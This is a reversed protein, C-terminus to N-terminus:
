HLAFSAEVLHSDKKFEIENIEVIKDTAKSVMCAIASVIPCGITIISHLNTEPLYLKEFVSESIMVDIVEEKTNIGIEEALELDNVLINAVKGLLDDINLKYAFIGTSPEYVDVKMMKEIMNILEMGPPSFTVGEPKKILFRTRLHDGFFAKRDSIESSPVDKAPIYVVTDELSDRYKPLESTTMVAKAPVYFIKGAFGVDGMARDISHYYPLVVSLLTSLDVKPRTAVLFVGGWFVCGLGIIAMAVHNLLLSMSLVLVGILSFVIGLELASVGKERIDRSAMLISNPLKSSNTAGDPKIEANNQSASIM